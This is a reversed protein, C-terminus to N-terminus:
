IRKLGPPSVTHDATESLIKHLQFDLPFRRELEQRLEHSLPTDREPSINLKKLTIERQLRNQMFTIFGELREYQFLHDVLLLGDKDSVMKGQSAIRAYNPRNPSLYSEVFQNFSIGLTSNEHGKLIDRSRYRYWSELWSVPNRLVAVSELSPLNPNEFAPRLKRNFERAGMHRFNPPRRFIASSHFELAQEIATTGTKPVALYVLREEYFIM